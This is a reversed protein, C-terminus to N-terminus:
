RGVERTVLQSGGPGGSWGGIIASFMGAQGGAHVFWLGAPAFKTVSGGAAAEAQAPTLGEAMGDRERVLEPAPVTLLELVRQRLQAKSWGAARFTRAHEPCVVVLADWRGFLKPHAVTRLCAAFSRALSEPTRSLQDVIGRVGEGAFLSVAGRATSAAAAAPASADSGCGVPGVGQEAALSEWPSGAEDEAFCFTFKGPNGLTARDVGGPRGGGVNRIVLQLARGITANARNGQGLANVGSNMGIERAIPGNVIVVPGVFHTTALVGHINFADTCAAEVAALVVPLYEPKCGAMVANIAVKEVTCEALDPPVVAVVDSPARSTGELMCLVREPTPPVVPLGDSWGREFCAEVDDELEGLDIQRASLRGGFRVVLREAIGPEVSRSGCGPRWEPLGGGLGSLGTLDEWDRRLWGEVRRVPQGNAVRFLTPVIEVGLGFSVELPSDDVVTVGSPFSPDDQSYVVLPLGARQISELVPATLQCTPCERKVVAVLGDPLQV